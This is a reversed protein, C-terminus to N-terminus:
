WARGTYRRRERTCSKWSRYEGCGTARAWPRRPRASLPDPVRSCTLANRTAVHRGFQSLSRVPNGRARRGVANLIEKEKCRRQRTGQGTSRRSDVRTQSGEDRRVREKKNGAVMDCAQFQGSSTNAAIARGNVGNRGGRRTFVKRRRKNPKVLTRTGREEGITLLLAHAVRAAMSGRRGTTGSCVLLNATRDESGGKYTPYHWCFNAM